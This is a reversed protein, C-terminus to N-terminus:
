PETERRSGRRYVSEYVLCRIVSGFTPPEFGRPHVEVEPSTQDNCVPADQRSEARNPRAALSKAAPPQSRRDANAENAENCDRAVSHGSSALGVAGIDAGKPAMTPAMGRQRSDSDTRCSASEVTEAIKAPPAPMAEFAATQDRVGLHTYM